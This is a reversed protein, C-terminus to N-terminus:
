TAHTARLREIMLIRKIEAQWQLQVPLRWGQEICYNDAALFHQKAGAQDGDALIKWAIDYGAQREMEEAAKLGILWIEYLDNM